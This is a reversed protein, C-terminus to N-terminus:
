GRSERRQGGTNKGEREAGMRRRQGQRVTVEPERDGMQGMGKDRQGRETMETERAGEIM